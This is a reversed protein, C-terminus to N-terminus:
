QNLYYAPFAKGIQSYMTFIQPKDMYERLGARLASAIADLNYKGPKYEYATTYLKVGATVLQNIADSVVIEPYGKVKDYDDQYNIHLRFAINSAIKQEATCVEMPVNRIKHYKM